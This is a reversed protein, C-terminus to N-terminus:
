KKERTRQATGGPARRLLGLRRALRRHDEADIWEVKLYDVLEADTMGIRRGEKVTFAYAEVETPTDVYNLEPRFLPRGDRFQKVHCLEHVIDLYITRFEGTELYHTSVILHGDVDSTGMYGFRASFFEVKLQHLLTATERGFLERVAPVDQFGRFFREFPYLRTPAKREIRVHLGSEQM